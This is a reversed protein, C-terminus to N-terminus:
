FFIIRFNLSSGSIIQYRELARVNLKPRYIFASFEFGSEPILKAGQFFNAWRAEFLEQIMHLLM